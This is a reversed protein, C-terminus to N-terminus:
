KVDCPSSYHGDCPRITAFLPTYHHMTAFSYTYHHITAFLPSSNRDPLKYHRITAFRPM